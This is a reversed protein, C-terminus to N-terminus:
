SHSELEESVKGSELFYDNRRLGDEIESGSVPKSLLYGQILHVGLQEIYELQKQNEIGEAIVRLNKGQSFEIYSRVREAITEDEMMAKTDCRDIKLTQISDAPFHQFYAESSYGTGFDDLALNVGTESLRQINYQSISNDKNVIQRETIELELHEPLIVHQELISNVRELLYPDELQRATLNVSMTIHPYKTQWLKLKKCAEGLV